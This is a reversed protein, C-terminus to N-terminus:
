LYGIDMYLSMIIHRLVIEIRLNLRFSVIQQQMGSNRRCSVARAREVREALDSGRCIRRTMTCLRRLRSLTKIRVGAAQATREERREVAQSCASKAPTLGAENERM